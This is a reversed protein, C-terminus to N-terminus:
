YCRGFCCEVIMATGVECSMRIPAFGGRVGSSPGSGFFNVPFHLSVHEAPNVDMIGSSSDLILFMALNVGRMAATMAGVDVNSSM